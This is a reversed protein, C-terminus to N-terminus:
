FMTPRPCNTFNGRFTHPPLGPLGLGSGPAHSEAALSEEPGRGTADEVVQPPVIIGQASDSTAVERRRMVATRMRTHAVSHTSPPLSHVLQSLARSLQPLRHHFYGPCLLAELLCFPLEAAMASAKEHLQDQKLEEESPSLVPGDSAAELGDETGCLCSFRAGRHRLLDMMLELSHEANHLYSTMSLKPFVAVVLVFIVGSMAVILLVLSLSSDTAADPYMVATGLAILYCENGGM